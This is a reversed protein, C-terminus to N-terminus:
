QIPATPLYFRMLLLAIGGEILFVPIMCLFGGAAFKIRFGDLSPLLGSLLVGLYLFFTIGAAMMTGVVSIKFQCWVDNGGATGFLILAFIVCVFTCLIFSYAGALYPNRIGKTPGLGDLAKRFPKERVWLPLM